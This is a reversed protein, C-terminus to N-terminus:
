PYESFRRGHRKEARFSFLAIKGKRVFNLVQLVQNQGAM